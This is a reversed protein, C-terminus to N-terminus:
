PEARWENLHGIWNLHFIIVQRLMQSLDKNAQNIPTEVLPKMLIGPVYSSLNM